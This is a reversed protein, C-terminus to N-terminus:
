VAIQNTSPSLPDLSVSAMFLFIIFNILEDRDTHVTLIRTWHLYLRSASILNEQFNMDSYSPQIGPNSIPM